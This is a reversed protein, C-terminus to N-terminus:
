LTGLGEGAKFQFMCLFPCEEKKDVILKSIQIIRAKSKLLQTCSLLLCKEM